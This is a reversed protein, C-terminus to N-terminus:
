CCTVEMKNIHESSCLDPPLSNVSGQLVVAQKENKQFTDPWSNKDEDLNVVRLCQEFELKRHKTKPSKTCELNRVRLRSPHELELSAETM